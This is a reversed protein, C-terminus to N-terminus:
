IASEADTKPRSSYRSSQLNSPTFISYAHIISEPRRTACSISPVGVDPFPALLQLAPRAPHHHSKRGTDPELGENVRGGPATRVSHERGHVSVRAYRESWGRQLQYLMLTSVPARQMRGKASASRRRVPQRVHRVPAGRTLVEVRGFQVVFVRWGRGCLGFGM